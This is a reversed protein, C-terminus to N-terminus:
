AVACSACISVQLKTRSAEAFIRTSGTLTTRVGEKEITGQPIPTVHSTLELHYQGGPLYRLSFYRGTRDKLRFECTPHLGFKKHLLTLTDVTHEESPEQPFKSLTLGRRHRERHQESTDPGLMSPGNSLLPDDERKSPFYYIYM